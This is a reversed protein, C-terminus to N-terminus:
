SGGAPLRTSSIAGVLFIASMAKLCAGADDLEVLIEHLQEIRLAVLARDRMATVPATIM